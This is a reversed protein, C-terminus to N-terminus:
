VYNLRNRVAELVIHMSNLVEENTFRIVAFAESNLFETRADDYEKTYLHSKGDVEVVLQKYLCVFDVIYVAIIHQRRFKYGLKKNRLEHWLAKESKTENARLFKKLQKSIHYFNPNATQWQPINEVDYRM